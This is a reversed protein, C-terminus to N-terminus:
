IIERFYKHSISFFYFSWTIRAHSQSWNWGLIIYPGHAGHVSFNHARISYKKSHICGQGMPLWSIIRPLTPLVLAQLLHNTCAALVLVSAVSIIFKSADLARLPPLADYFLDPKLEERVKEWSYLKQGIELVGQAEVGEYIFFYTLQWM